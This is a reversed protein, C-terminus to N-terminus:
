WQVNIKTFKEGNIEKYEIGISKLVDAFKENTNSKYTKTHDSINILIVEGKENLIELYEKCWSCGGYGSLLFFVDKKENTLIQVSQVQVENILYKKGNKALTSTKESDIEHRFLIEGNKYIEISQKYYPFGFFFGNKENDLECDFKYSNFNMIYGEFAYTIKHLVNTSDKKIDLLNSKKDVENVTEKLSREEEEVENNVCSYITLTFFIIIFKRM